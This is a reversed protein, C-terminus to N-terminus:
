KLPVKMIGFLTCMSFPQELHQYPMMKNTPMDLMQSLEEFTPVLQFDCFTFCRLPPDYYQTLATIALVQVEVELLGLLNGYKSKFITREVVKLKQGLERLVTLDSKLVMVKVKKKLGEVGSSKGFGSEMNFEM